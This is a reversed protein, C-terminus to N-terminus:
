NLVFTKEVINSEYDDAYHKIAVKTANDQFIVEVMRLYYSADMDISFEKYYKDTDFIDQVVLFAKNNKTIFSAILTDHVAIPGEFYRSVKAKKVDYMRYKPFVHTGGFGYELTVVNNNKSIDFSGRYGHYGKDLLNGNNDYIIYFDGVYEKSHRIEYNKEKVYVETFSSEFNEFTNFYIDKQEDTIFLTNKANKCSSFILVMFLAFLFCFIKKM